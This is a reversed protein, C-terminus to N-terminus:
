GQAGGRTRQRWETQVEEVLLQRLAIAHRFDIGALREFEERMSLPALLAAREFMEGAAEKADILHLLFDRRAAHAVRGPGEDPRASTTQRSWERILRLADDREDRSEDAIAGLADCAAQSFDLTRCSDLYWESLFLDKAVRLMRLKDLAAQERSAPVPGQM